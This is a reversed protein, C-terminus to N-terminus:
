KLGIIIQFLAKPPFFPADTWKEARIGFQKLYLFRGFHEELSFKRLGKL